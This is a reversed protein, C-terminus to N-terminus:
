RHLPIWMTVVTGGGPASWVRAGGGAESMRALISERLGFGQRRTTDFGRGADSVTVEVSDSTARVDVRAEDVEAHKAVNALAEGTADRLPAVQEPRVARVTADDIGDLRVTTRVGDATAQDAQTRLAPVLGVGRGRNDDDRLLLARIEAAQGRSAAQVARLRSEPDEHTGGARLAMAELTQLVTDHLGRLQRAREAERGARLGESRALRRGHRYLPLLAFVMVMGLALWLERAVIHLVSQQAVPVGNLVGMVMQLPLGLAVLVAGVRFGRAATWLGVGGIFYFWAVDRFSEDATGTPLIAAFGLNLGICVAMDVVLLARSRHLPLPHGRASQMVLAGNGAVVLVLVVLMSVVAISPPWIEGLVGAISSPAAIVRFFLGAVAMWQVWSVIEDAHLGSLLRRFGRFEIASAREHIADPDM